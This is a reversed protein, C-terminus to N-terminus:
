ETYETVINGASDLLTAVDGDNNWVPTSRNWYIDTVTDEGLGTHIKVSADPDLTFGEPFVFQHNGEDTLIWGTLDQPNLGRNTIEVWEENLNEKEPVPAVFSVNSIIIETKNTDESKLTLCLDDAAGYGVFFVLFVSLCM